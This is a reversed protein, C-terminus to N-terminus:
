ENGLATPRHALSEGKAAYWQQWAAIRQRSSNPDQATIRPAVEPALEALSDLAVLRVSEQRDELLRVLSPIFTQQGTQAMRIATERRLTDDSSYALRQLAARGLENGWAALVAAAELRVHTRPSALLAEVDRAREPPPSHRLAQLAAIVVTESEDNLLPMLLAPETWHPHRAFYGCGLRRVEATPRSLALRALRSAEPTDSSSAARMAGQWIMADDEVATREALRAVLLRPLPGDRAAGALTQVRRRREGLSATEWQSLQAFLPELEPLLESNVAAPLTEKWDCELVALAPLLKRGRSRLVRLLERHEASSPPSRQLERLQARLKRLHEDDVEWRRKSSGRTHDDSIEVFGAQTDQSGADAHADEAEEQTASLCTPLRSRLETLTTQRVEAPANWPFHPLEPYAAALRRAAEQRIALIDSNLAALLLSAAADGPWQSSSELVALAVNPNADALLQEAVALADEDHRVALAQAAAQRVRWQRDEAFQQLRAPEHELLASAAAAQVTEARDELLQELRRQASEGPIRGLAAIATLRVQLDHDRLARETAQEAATPDVAVIARLAARRVAADRDNLLTTLRTTAKSYRGCAAIHNLVVLKVEKSPCDIATELHEKLELLSSHAAQPGDARSALGSEDPPIQSGDESLRAVAARLLAAHLDGTYGPQQPNGWQRMLSLLAQQSRPQALNGLAEAAACRMPLRLQRDGVSQILVELGRDDRGRALAIAANVAKSRTKSALARAFDPRDGKPMALVAELEAHQWAYREPPTDFRDPALTSASSSEAARCWHDTAWPAPQDGDATPTNRNEPPPPEDDADRAAASPIDDSVAHSAKEGWPWSLDRNSFLSLREACGTSVPAFLAVTWLVCESLVLLGRRKPGCALPPARDLTPLEM